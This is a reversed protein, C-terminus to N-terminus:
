KVLELEAKKLCEERLEEVMAAVHPNDFARNKWAFEILNVILPKFKDM